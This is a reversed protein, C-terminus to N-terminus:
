GHGGSGTEVKEKSKDTKEVKEYHAVNWFRTQWGSDRKDRVDRKISVSVKPANRKVIQKLRAKERIGNDGKGPVKRNRAGNKTDGKSSRKREEQGQSLAVKLQCEGSRSPPTM